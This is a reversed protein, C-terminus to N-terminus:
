IGAGDTLDLRVAKTQLIRSNPPVSHTLWINGGVVTGEGITIRGLISSNSYITVNDEIIPHRPLDQPHGERDYTFNRSGLTVGQYLTVCNGIITTQGIVIGTGHDIGFYEGIQAGPHIDIGTETHALETIIRPILPIDLIYLEHAIRYNSIAKISPYCFIVEGYSRAAPDNNFIAKVDFSMLRKIKPLTDIFQYTLRNARERLKPADSEKADPQFQMADYIQQSLLHFSKEVSIGTHYVLSDRNVLPNGYYGPFIASRLCDITESLSQPSPLRRERVPIHPYRDSHNETLAQVTKQINNM